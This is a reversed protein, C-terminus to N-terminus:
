WGVFTEPNKNSYIRNYADIYTQPDIDSNEVSLQTVAYAYREPDSSVIGLFGIGFKLSSM